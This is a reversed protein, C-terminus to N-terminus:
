SKERPLDALFSIISFIKQSTNTKDCRPRPPDFVPTEGAAIAVVSIRRARRASAFLIHFFQWTERRRFYISGSQQAWAIGFFHWALGLTLGRDHRLNLMSTSFYQCMM